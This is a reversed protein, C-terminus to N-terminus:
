TPQFMATYLNSNLANLYLKKRCYKKMYENEYIWINMKMYEYM